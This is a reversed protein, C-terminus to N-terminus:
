YKGASTTIVVLLREEKSSLTEKKIALDSKARRPPDYKVAM